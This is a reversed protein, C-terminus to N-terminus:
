AKEKRPYAHYERPYSQTRSIAREALREQDAGRVYREVEALSQHGSIARIEIASCGAEALRRCCSKRLGHLPCGTLGAEMAWRNMANGFSKATAYPKCHGSLLYTLHPSPTADLIAKLEPHIPVWLRTGTKQQVVSIKGDRVHQKGMVVLDSARQGTYLALALAVRAQSGIPHKAEFTAIEDETWCHWGDKSLKPRKIGIAPNDERIGDELALALLVRIMSLVNRAMGPRDAYREM